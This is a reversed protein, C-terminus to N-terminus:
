LKCSKKLWLVKIQNFLASRLKKEAVDKKGINIHGFSKKFLAEIAWPV